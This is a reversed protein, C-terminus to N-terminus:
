RTHDSKKARRVHHWIREFVKLLKDIVRELLPWSTLMAAGAISLIAGLAFVLIEGGLNICPCLGGLLVLFLGIGVLVFGVLKNTM